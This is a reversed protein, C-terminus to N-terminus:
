GIVNVTASAPAGVPVNVSDPQLTLGVVMAPSPEDWETVAFGDHAIVIAAGAPPEFVLYRNEPPAVVITLVQADPEQLAAVM